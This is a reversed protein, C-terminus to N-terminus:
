GNEPNDETQPPPSDGTSPEPNQTPDTPQEPNQNPDTPQEPDPLPEPEPLYEGEHETCPKKPQTGDKYYTAARPCDVGPLLGSEKCYVEQVIGDPVEFKGSTIGKLQHIQTMLKGWIETQMARTSSVSHNYDYGWWIGALYYPTYGIFWRDYCSSTTGTKGATEIGSVKAAKGFYTEAVVNQLTYTMLYATQESFLSKKSIDKQLVTKGSYSEVRTYSRSDTFYGKNAYVSFARTMELVTLGDSLAGLSLPATGNKDTDALHELKLDNKAFDYVTSYTGDPDQQLQLTRVAPPNYSNTLASYISMKGHYKGDANAPWDKGNYKMVPSDEVITGLTIMNEELARGYVTLPKISSGPQRPAQTARNYSLNGTKEGRGGIIGVIDGNTPNMVVMAVEPYEYEDKEKNYYRESGYNDPNSFYDEMTKQIDIQITSYIKLGGTYIKSVAESRSYNNKEMLDKVVEEFVTDTAYSWSEGDTDETKLSRDRLVLDEDTYQNYERETIMDQEFMYHLTLNRREINNDPHTYPDYYSPANTISILSAAEVVSLDSADKGFYYQSATQVGYQNNGFYVTNLYFELIQEKTYNRELYLARLMEKIKRTPSNENDGTVNKILQQTITSGGDLNATSSHTLKAASYGIVAKTTRIPDVGMHVYFRKDEIAIIANKINQCIEDSSVWTRHESSYLIQYEVYDGNEDLAYIVSSQNIDRDEFKELLEPETYAYIFTVAIGFVIVGVVACILGVHAFVSLFGLLIRLPLPKKKAYKDPNKKYMPMGYKQEMRAIDKSTIRKKKKSRNRDIRDKESM